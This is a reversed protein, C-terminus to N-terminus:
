VEGFKEWLIEEVRFVPGSSCLPRYSAGGQVEWIPVVCGQCVGLGCALNEELSVEGPLGEEQLICALALLFGRPGCGYVRHYTRASLSERFLQTVLGKYGQSGDETALHIKLDLNEWERGLFVQSASRAGYFLDLRNGRELLCRALFLFPAIGMGGAVLALEEGQPLSFGRGLPGLVDLNEGPNLRSLWRTGRGKVQFLLFIHEGQRDHLSFPRRLLPDCSSNQACRVHLFQGPCAKLAIQPAWLKLKYVSPAIEKLEEVRASVLFMSGM